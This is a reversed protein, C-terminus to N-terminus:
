EPGDMVEECWAIFDSTPIVHTEEGGWFLELVIRTRESAMYCEVLSLAQGHQFWHFFAGENDFACQIYKGLQEQFNIM